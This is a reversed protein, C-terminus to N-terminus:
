HATSGGFRDHEAVVVVLNAIAHQMSQADRVTATLLVTGLDSVNRAAEARWTRDSIEQSLTLWWGRDNLWALMDPICDLLESWRYCLVSPDRGMAVAVSRNLSSGPVIM